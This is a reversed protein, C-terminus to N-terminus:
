TFTWVPPSEMCTVITQSIQGKSSLFCQLNHKKGKAITKMNTNVKRCVQNVAKYFIEFQWNFLM